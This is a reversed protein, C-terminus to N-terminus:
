TGASPLLHPFKLVNKQTQEASRDNVFHLKIGLSEPCAIALCGIAECLTNAHAHIEPNDKLWISIRFEQKPINGYRTLVILESMKKRLKKLSLRPMAISILNKWITEVSRVRDMCSACAMNVFHIRGRVHVTIKKAARVLRKM